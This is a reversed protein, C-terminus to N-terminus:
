FNPYILNYKGYWKCQSSAEEFRFPSFNSQFTALEEWISKKSKWCFGGTQDTALLGLFIAPFNL